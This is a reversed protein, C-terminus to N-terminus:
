DSVARIFLVVVAIVIFVMIGIEAATGLEPIGDVVAHYMNSALNAVPKVFEILNTIKDQLEGFDM